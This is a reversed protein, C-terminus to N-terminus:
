GFGYMTRGQRQLAHVVDLATVTKRRSHDTYTVADKITATLFSKLVSRADDYIVGSIRKVGGRRALRRIAGKSIGAITDRRCMSDNPITVRRAYKKKHRKAKSGKSGKAEGKSGKAEGKSGKPIWGNEKDWVAGDSSREVVSRRFLFPVKGTTDGLGTM